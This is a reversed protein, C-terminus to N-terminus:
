VCVTVERVRRTMKGNLVVNSRTCKVIAHPYVNLFLYINQDM